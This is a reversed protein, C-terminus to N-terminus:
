DKRPRKWGPVLRRAARTTALTDPPVDKTIVSGAGITAGEGVSVPAVLATNSGIFADPGIRTPHKHAGDYNCTITGAGVNTREGIEADGIYSLHNVKSGRGLRAAKVEVFNGVRADPGLEAGPRLRAFPGVHAGPGVRAGDVHCHALIVAGAEVVSDRIVCGPGITVGDGLRVQGELVVNVDIFVDRGADVRGRVDLRAPDALSAGSRMLAQAQRGQYLRELRALQIRDNVGEVEAPDAATLTRVPVGDAIALAVCDTLYLEGQANCRELGATWGALRAAPAALIGSNVEPIALEAASADRQEVIRQLAGDAGRVIRGYGSPDAPHTTLVALAGDTALAALKRLTDVEVLPVDGYLVLVTDAAPILPLAHAVADGTGSQVSQEVWEVPADAFAAQVQGGGHGHVVVVRAAALRYVTDLVHGLLPRGALGHLVKPRDSAMRKGQGAALIVVSLGM